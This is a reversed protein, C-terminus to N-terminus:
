EELSLFYGLKYIKLLTLSPNKGLLNKKITERMKKWLFLYIRDLHLKKMKQVTHLLPTSGIEEKIENLTILSQEVKSLYASNSELGNHLLMNDIHVIKANLRQLEKGFLTDEHGYRTIKTNFLISLFLERRIAFNFTYFKDYPARNRVDASRKKDADKEYKYRLTCEKDTLTAAHYLGGCAVDNQEMAEIYNKLFNANEVVADSDIFLLVPYQAERALTNRMAARGTNEKEIIRRSHPLTDANRNLQLHPPATGDEGVLIEFSVGLTEGQKHLEEILTSCNYDKTPILISLM